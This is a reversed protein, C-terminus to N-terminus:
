KQGWVVVKGGFFRLLPVKEMFSEYSLRKNLDIMNAMRPPYFDMTYVRVHKAGTLSFWRKVTSPSYTRAYYNLNLPCLKNQIFV